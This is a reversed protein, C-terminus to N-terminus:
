DPYVIDYKDSEETSDEGSGNPGLSKEKVEAVQVKKQPIESIVNFKLLLNDPDYEPNCNFYHDYLHRFKLDCCHEKNKKEEYLTKIHELYKIYKTKEETVINNRKEIEHFNIFYEALDKEVEWNNKYDNYDDYCDFIVSEENKITYQLKRLKETLVFVDIDKKGNENFKKIEDYIWYKLLICYEVNKEEYKNSFIYDLHYAFKKCLDEFNKYKDKLPSELNCVSSYNNINDVKKFEDYIKHAPLKNLIDEWDTKTTAENRARGAGPTM